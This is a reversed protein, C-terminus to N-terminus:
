GGEELSSLLELLRFTPPDAEKVLLLMAKLEEESLEKLDAQETSAGVLWERRRLM